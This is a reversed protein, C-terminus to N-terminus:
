ILDHNVESAIREIESTDIGRTQFDNVILSIYLRNRTNNLPKPLTTVRDGDFQSEPYAVFEPEGEKDLVVPYSKHDLKKIAFEFIKELNSQRNQGDIKHEKM